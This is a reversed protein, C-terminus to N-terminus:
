TSTRTGPTCTRFWSTSTPRRSARRRGSPTTRSWSSASAPPTQARSNPRSGSIRSAARWATTTTRAHMGHQAHHHALERGHLQVLGQLEVPLRTGASHCQRRLLQFLRERRDPRIRSQRDVPAHHEKFRGWTPDYSTLFDTLKGSNYQEDGLTIVALPNLSLVLDSTAKEHCATPPGPAVTTTPM